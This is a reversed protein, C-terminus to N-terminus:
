RKLPIKQPKSFLLTKESPYLILVDTPGEGDNFDTQASTWTYM